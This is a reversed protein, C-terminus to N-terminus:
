QSSTPSCTEGAGLPSPDGGWRICIMDPILLHKVPKNKPQPQAWRDVATSRQAALDIERVITNCYYILIRQDACEMRVPEKALSLSVKWRQNNICLDGGRLEQKARWRLWILACCSSKNVGEAEARAEARERIRQRLSGPSRPM